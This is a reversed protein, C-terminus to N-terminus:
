SENWKCNIFVSGFDNDYFMASGTEIVTISCIDAVYDFVIGNPLFLAVDFSYNGPCITDKPITSTLKFSRGSNVNLNYHSTFIKNKNKDLLAIGVKISPVTKSFGELSITIDSDIGFQDTVSGNSDTAAVMTLAVEKAPEALYVGKESNSKIYADIVSKIEGQTEILGNKLLIASKCLSAISGMNHSVFLVTRGEGKSVDNMKGLCKQQFEADGVALVEDVILIESELHAAVGFALRVYM